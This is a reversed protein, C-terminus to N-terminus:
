LIEAVQKALDRWDYATEVRQRGAQGLRHALAPDALLRRIADVVADPSEPDVLLGTEGDVVAEVAGGSRGAVVPKGCAGAEIFSIGFGEIDGTLATQTTVRNPMVFVDCLNYYKPLDEDPVYGTFIVRDDLGLNQTLRRLRNEERGRGGILYVLDPMDNALAALSRIVADHGKREDLRAITLLVRKGDLGWRDILAPDPPAPRFRATDVGPYIVRLRGSAVGFREFESATYASNAIVLDSERLVARMLRRSCGRHFRVTESGYVYVVYPVGFLKKCLWGAIGSSLVQGCHHKAPRRFVSVLLCHLITLVTKIAKAPRNEGLPLAIRRVPFPLARDIEVDGPMRPAIVMVRDSPLRRWINVFFTAIGSTVPPFDNAWLISRPM